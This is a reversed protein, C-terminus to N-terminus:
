RFVRIAFCITTGSSCRTCCRKLRNSPSSRSFSMTIPSEIIVEHAGCGGRHRFIPSGDTGGDIPEEIRLAPFRNPIVRVRWDAPKPLGWAPVRFIEPPTLQERGPCFPCIKGAAEPTPKPCAGRFEHPRRVRSPAFIVWDNTTPDYRLLSM